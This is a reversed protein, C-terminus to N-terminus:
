WRELILGDVYNFDTDDTVLVWNNEICQAAIWLDNM